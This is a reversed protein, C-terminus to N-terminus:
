KTFNLKLEGASATAHYEIIKEIERKIIKKSSAGKSSQVNTLLKDKTSLCVETDTSYVGYSRTEFNTSHGPTRLDILLGSYIPNTIEGDIRLLM